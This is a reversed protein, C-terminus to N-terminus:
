ALAEGCVREADEALSQALAVSELVDYSLSDLYGKAKAKVGALGVAPVDVMRLMLREAHRLRRNQDREDAVPELAYAAGDLTRDVEDALSALEADAEAVRAAAPRVLAPGFLAAAAGFLALRRSPDASRPADAARQPGAKAYLTHVMDALSAAPDMVIISRDAPEAPAREAAYAQARWLIAATSFGHNPFTPAPGRDPSPGASPIHLM